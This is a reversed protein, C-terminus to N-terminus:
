IKDMIKYKVEQVESLSLEHYIDRYMDLILITLCMQKENNIPYNNSIQSFDDDIDILYNIIDNNKYFDDILLEITIKDYKNKKM